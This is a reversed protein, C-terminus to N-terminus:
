ARSTGWSGRALIDVAADSHQHALAVLPDQALFSSLWSRPADEQEIVTRNAISRLLELYDSQGLFTLGIAAAQRIRPDSDEALPRLTDAAGAAESYALYRAASAARRGGWAGARNARLFRGAAPATKPASETGQRGIAQRVLRRHIRVLDRPGNKELGVRAQGRLSTILAVDVIEWGGGPVIFVAIRSTEPHWAAADPHTVQIERGDAM